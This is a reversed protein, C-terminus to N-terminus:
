KTAPTRKKAQEQEWLTPPRPGEGRVFRDVSFAEGQTLEKLQKLLEPGGAATDLGVCREFVTRPSIQLGRVDGQCFSCGIFEATSADLNSLDVFSFDVGEFRGKLGGPLIKAISSPSNRWRLEIM